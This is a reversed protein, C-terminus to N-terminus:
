FINCASSCNVNVKNDNLNNYKIVPMYDNSQFKNKIKNHFNNHLKSKGYKKTNIENKKVHYLNISSNAVKKNLVNGKRSESKARIKIEESTTWDYLYNYSLNNEKLIIKLLNRLYEYDPNDTYQLNKVYDLFKAFELPLGECLKRSSIEMKKELIKKNREDKTKAIIEQWPLEGKILYVLTYALSELDDRRSQEFGKLANISAYRPTGTLKKNNLLPYHMLTSSSRYKKGLGFDVIYVYKSNSGLGMCFNDPKIDRHIIHHDHIYELISLIQEGIMCVTKISFCKYIKLYYYLSKGLLEMVLINYQETSSYFEIYPINTGQLYHLIATENELLNCNKRRSEFKVAFYEHNYKAKYITGFSGKGIKSICLYRNFFKKNKINNFECDEDM